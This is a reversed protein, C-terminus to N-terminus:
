ISRSCVMVIIYYFPYTLDGGFIQCRFSAKTFQHIMFYTTTIARTIQTASAADTVISVQSWCVCIIPPLSIQMAQTGVMPLLSKPPVVELVANTGGNSKKVANTTSKANASEKVLEGIFRFSRILM